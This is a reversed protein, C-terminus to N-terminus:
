DLMAPIVATESSPEVAQAVVVRKENSLVSPKYAPARGWGRKQRQVMAEPETHSIRLQDANKGQSQKKEVRGQMLAATQEAQVLRAQDGADDPHHDAEDRPAQHRV